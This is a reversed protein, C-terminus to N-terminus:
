RYMLIHIRTNRYLFVHLQNYRDIYVVRYRFLHLSQRREREKREGVIRIANRRRYVDITQSTNDRLVICTNVQFEPKLVILCSAIFYTYILSRISFNYSAFFFASRFPLSILSIISLSKVLISSSFFLCAFCTFRM